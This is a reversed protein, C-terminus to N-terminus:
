INLKMTIELEEQPTTRVRHKILIIKKDNNSFYNEINDKMLKVRGNLIFSSDGM